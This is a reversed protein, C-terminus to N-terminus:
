FGYFITTYAIFDLSTVDSLLCPWPAESEINLKNTANLFHRHLVEVAMHM